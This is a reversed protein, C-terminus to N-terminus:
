EANKEIIIPSVPVYLPNEITPVKHPYYCQYKVRCEQYNSDLAAEIRKRIHSENNPPLMVSHLCISWPLEVDIFKPKNDFNELQIMYRIENEYKYFRRKLLMLNLYKELNFDEFFISYKPNGRKYLHLLEDDTLHYNVLGEYLKGHNQIVYKELFKRFLGIHIKFKVCPNEDMNDTYIKWAAECDKNTTLCCAYMDTKFNKGQKVNEYDATYYLREFPDKWETPKVFRLRGNDLCKEAVDITLYKYIFKNNIRDGIGILNRYPRKFPTYKKIEM